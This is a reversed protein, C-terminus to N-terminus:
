YRNFLLSLFRLLRKVQFIGLQKIVDELTLVEMQSFSGASFYVAISALLNRVPTNGRMTESQWKRM